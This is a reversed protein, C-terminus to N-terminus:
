ASWGTGEQRKERSRGYRDPREEEEELQPWNIHLDPDLIRAQTDLMDDHMAIPFADYEQSLYIDVLEETKGEYNTRFLREPLYWRGEEYSPMLQRIRDNKPMNGKLEIVRFHYNEQKMKDKIHAIDAQIGYREYGVSLPKWKRHLRFLHHTRETLNLRDRLMDLVYYNNDAGLGIVLMVTYDSSDKKENAPDVLIYKNMGTGDTKAHFNVWERRFGQSRDAIPNLLMQANYVYIGMMRRKESLSEKSLLVPEGEMTGDITAPHIRTKVASRRIMEGYTDNFHYRTGVHRRITPEAGLNLSLAWSDTTKMIMDDSRVNDITVLDDYIQINFHKSTPQGDIVGWAEITSEKPNSKRKLVIGDDESWKPADKSPNSWIIDPFLGKLLDNQEFERKIQRLFGKAIPRTCSFIGVTPELGNWESLPEDGHSALIDQITKGYTIITSKYHERSWLDLYGNPENQVERCRALLWTHSMDKRRLVHWLLFFLDTRCLYRMVSRYEEDPLKVLLPLFNVYDNVSELLPKQM